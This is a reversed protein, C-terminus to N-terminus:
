GLFFDCSMFLAPRFFSLFAGGLCFKQFGSFHCVSLPACLRVGVGVEIIWTWRDSATPFSSADLEVINAESEYFGGGGGQQQQQQQQQFGGFGGFGGGGTISLM